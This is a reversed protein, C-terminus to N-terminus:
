RVKSLDVRDREGGAEKKVTGQLLYNAVELRGKVVADSVAGEAVEDKGSVCRDHKKQRLRTHHENTPKTTSM